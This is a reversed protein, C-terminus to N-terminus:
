YYEHWGKNPIYSIYESTLYDYNEGQWINDTVLQKSIGYGTKDKLNKYVLSSIRVNNRNNDSDKSLHAANNVEKALWVLDQTSADGSVGSKICLIRESCDVGIGFDLKMKLGDKKLLDDFKVSIYNDYRLAYTMKMAAKVADNISEKSWGHFFVLISDGDFSRVEGGEGIAIKTVTYLFLKNIRALTKSYFNKLIETSKRIDIYLISAGFELSNQGFTPKSDGKKPIYNVEEIQFEGELIISDAGKKLDDSFAM